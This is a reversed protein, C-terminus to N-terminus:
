RMDGKKRGTQRPNLRKKKLITDIFLRGRRDPVALDKEKM